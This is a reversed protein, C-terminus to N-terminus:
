HGESTLHTYVTIELHNYIIKEGNEYRGIPIGEFYDLEKNDKGKIITASPLGDLYLTYAM